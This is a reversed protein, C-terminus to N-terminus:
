SPLWERLGEWTELLWRLRALEGERSGTAPGPGGEEAGDWLAQLVQMLAGNVRLGTQIAEFVCAAPAASAEASGGPAGDSKSGAAVLQRAVEAAAEAAALGATGYGCEVVVAGATALPRYRSVHLSGAVAPGRGGAAVGKALQQAWAHLATPDALLERVASGRLLLLVPHLPGPSTPRTTAALREVARELLDPLPMPPPLPGPVRAPPSASPAGWDRIRAGTTGAAEDRRLRLSAWMEDHILARPLGYRRAAELVAETSAGKEVSM